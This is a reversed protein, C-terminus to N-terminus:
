PGVPLPYATSVNVFGRGVLAGPVERQVTM